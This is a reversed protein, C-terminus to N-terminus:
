GGASVNIQRVFVQKGGNIKWLSIVPSTTDGNKDFGFSGIISKFDKTSQITKLVQARTPAKGGNEKIAKDVAGIIVQAAVYGNASYAGIDSHFKAKYAKIFAQASASKEADPAAVTYYSNNAAPGAVKLFEDDSIGDGGEFPVKTPDMGSSGMQQRILGGGTVTVGGYYIADPHTASVKTLLAKFDQQNATVHDHGLVSGGESKFDADFVNALGLGYTENDDIIYVKKFGLQKAFQAGAKGQVDDTACVRFYTIESPHSTRYKSTKTLTPNTNSPSILPLGTENSVPIEAAAVNSNFPGVVGMVAADAALSRINTAGQQPNHIGGVADDLPDLQFRFGAPAHLNAEDVALQAGNQTPIGNSADGGSTPLETGIKIVQEAAQAPAFAGCTGFLSVIAALAVFRTLSRRSM